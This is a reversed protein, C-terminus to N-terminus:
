SNYLVDIYEKAKGLGDAHIHKDGKTVQEGAFLDQAKHTITTGSWDINIVRKRWGIKIRGKPTTVLFWPRQRFYYSNDYENPIAEVFILRDGFLGILENQETQVEEQFAKNNKLNNFRITDEMKEVMVRIGEIDEDTIERGINMLVQIHVRGSHSVSERESVVKLEKDDSAM